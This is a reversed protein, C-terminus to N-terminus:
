SKAVVRLVARAGAHDRRAPIGVLRRDLRLWLVRPRGDSWAGDVYVHVFGYGIVATKRQGRRARRLPGRRGHKLVPPLATELLLFRRGFSPEDTVRTPRSIKERVHGSHTDFRQLLCDHIRTTIVVRIKSEANEVKGGRKEEGKEGRERREEGKM